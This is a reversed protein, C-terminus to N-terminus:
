LGFAIKLVPDPVFLYVRDLDASQEPRFVGETVHAQISPPNVRAPNDLGHLTLSLLPRMKLSTCTHRARLAQVAVEHSITSFMGNKQTCLTYQSM